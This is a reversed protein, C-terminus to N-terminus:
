KSLGLMASLLRTDLSVGVFTGRTLINSTVIDKAEGTFATTGLVFASDALVATKGYHWGAAISAGRTFEFVGGIFLNDTIGKELGVGVLPFIKELVSAEKLPDRGRTVAGGRWFDRSLLPWYLVATLSGALRSGGDVEQITNTSPTLPMVVFRPAPVTTRVINFALGAHYLPNVRITHSRLDVTKKESEDDFTITFRFMESTYPGLVVSATDFPVQVSAQKTGQAVVTGIAAAPRVVFDSPAYTGEDVRVDFRELESQRAIITIVFRDDQDANVPLPSLMRGDPGVVVHVTNNRFDNPEKLYSRLVRRAYEAATEGGDTTVVGMPVDVYATAVSMDTVIRATCPLSLTAPSAADKGANQIVGGQPVVFTRTSGKLAPFQAAAIMIPQQAGCQFVIGVGQEEKLGSIVISIPALLTLRDAKPSSSDFTVKASPPMTTADVAITQQSEAILPLSLLAVLLAPRRLHNPM